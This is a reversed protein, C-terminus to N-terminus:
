FIRCSCTRCCIDVLGKKVGGGWVQFKYESVLRVNMKEAQDKREYVTRDVWTILSISM